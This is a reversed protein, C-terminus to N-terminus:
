HAAATHQRKQNRHRSEPWRQDNCGISSWRRRPGAVHRRRRRRRRSNRCLLTRTLRASSRTAVPALVSRTPVCRRGGSAHQDLVPKTVRPAAAAAGHVRAARHLTVTQGIVAAFLKSSASADADPAGFRIAAVSWWSWCVSNSNTRPQNCADDNAGQDKRPRWQCIEEMPSPICSM